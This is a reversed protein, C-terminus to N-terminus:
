NNDKKNNNDKNSTGVKRELFPLVLKYINVITLGIGVFIAALLGYPFSNLRKDLWVGLILCVALPLAILFGLEGGLVLAQGFNSKTNRPQPQLSM